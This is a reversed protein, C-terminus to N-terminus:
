IMRAYEERVSRGKKESRPLCFRLRVAVVLVVVATLVEGEVCAMSGRFFGRTYLRARESRPLVM